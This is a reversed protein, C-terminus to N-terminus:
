KPAESKKIREPDIVADTIKEVTACYDSYAEEYKQADIVHLANAKRAIQNLSNGCYYLQRMMLRFDPPPLDRPQLGHILQRIYTSKPLGSKECRRNLTNYEEDNLWVQLLHTRNRM